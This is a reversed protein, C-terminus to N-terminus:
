LMTTNRPLADSGGPMLTLVRVLARKTTDRRIQSNSRVPLKQAANSLISSLGALSLIIEIWWNEDPTRASTMRRCGGEFSRVANAHCIATPDATARFVLTSSTSRTNFTEARPASQARSTPRAVGVIRARM